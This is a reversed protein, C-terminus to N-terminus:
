QKLEDKLSKSGRSNLENDLIYIYYIGSFRLYNSTLEFVESDSILM